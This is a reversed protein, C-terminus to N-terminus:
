GGQRARYLHAVAAARAVKGSVGLKLYVNSLHREVTRVSLTLREAIAANDLGQAALRLVALERETLPEANSAVAGDGAVGEPALFDAVEAIFVDWAPEDALVIHNDSDLTVLRADPIASALLRAEDLHTIRERRAHLVLTPVTLEALLDTVDVKVREARAAILLDPTTAALQLEDIWRMQEETAGPIMLNTFFRRFLADPRTWGVRIMQAFTEELARGEAARVGAAWTGYLILRGVKRPHRHAYAIAVPGGQAMGLLAFRDLGAADVVAELDAIRAEFSFDKVDWDSLGFGREDYRTMSAIEGLEVLFHRWVPSQWDHQLHSLWCPNVVLPPGNGHTAYAIRVGDASRCFRVQDRATGATTTGRPGSM